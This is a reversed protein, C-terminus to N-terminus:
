GRHREGDGLCSFPWSYSKTCVRPLDMTQQAASSFSFSGKLVPLIDITKFYRYYAMSTKLKIKMNVLM